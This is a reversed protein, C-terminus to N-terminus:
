MMQSCSPAGVRIKGNHNDAEAGEKILRTEIWVNPEHYVIDGGSLRQILSLAGPVEYEGETEMDVGSWRFWEERTGRIILSSPAVQVLRGTRLHLRLWPDFVQGDEATWGCYEEISVKPFRHKLMPRCPVFLRHTASRAKNKFAELILQSLGKRQHRLSVQVFLMSLATTQAGAAQDAFAKKLVEDWGAPIGEDEAYAFPVAYGAAMLEGECSAVMIYESFKRPLQPWFQISSPSHFEYSPLGGIQGSASVLSDELSQLDANSFTSQGFSQVLVVPSM